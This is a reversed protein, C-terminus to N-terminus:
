VVVATVHDFCVGGPAVDQLLKGDAHEKDLLAFTPKGDFYVAGM